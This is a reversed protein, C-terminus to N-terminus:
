NDNQAFRLIQKKAFLPFFCIRRAFGARLIVINPTKGCGRFGHGVFSEQLVSYPLSKQLASFPFQSGAIAEEQSKEV